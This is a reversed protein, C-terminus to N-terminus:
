RRQESSNQIDGYSQQKQEKASSGVENGKEGDPKKMTEMGKVSRGSDVVGSEAM